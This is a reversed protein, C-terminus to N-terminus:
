EHRAGRVEPAGKRWVMRAWPEDEGDAEDMGAGGFRISTAMLILERAIRELDSGDHRLRFSCVLHREQTQDTEDHDVLRLTAAEPRGDSGRLDFEAAQLDSTKLLRAAAERLLCDVDLEARSGGLSIPLTRAVLALYNARM